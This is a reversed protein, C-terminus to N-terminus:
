DPKILDWKGFMATIEPKGTFMAIGQKCGMFVATFILLASM